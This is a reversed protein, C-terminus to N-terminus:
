NEEKIASNPGGPQQRGSLQAVQSPEIHKSGVGTHLGQAQPQPYSHM